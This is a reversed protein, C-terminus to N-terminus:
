RWPLGCEGSVLAGAWSPQISLLAIPYCCPPFERTIKLSGSECVYSKGDKWLIVTQLKARNRDPFASKEAGFELEGIVIPSLMVDVARVKQLHGRVSPVGKVAAIMINTNVAASFEERSVDKLGV